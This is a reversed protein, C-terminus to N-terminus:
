DLGLHDTQKMTLSNDKVELADAVKYNLCLDFQRAVEMILHTEWAEMNAVTQLWATQIKIQDLSNQHLLMRLCSEM